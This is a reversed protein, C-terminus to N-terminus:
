LWDIEREYEREFASIAEQERLTFSLEDLGALLLQKRFPDIEFQEVEGGPGRLTQGALDIVIRLNRGVELATWLAAVRAEALVVPLLGNMLSNNFFIDGFSPAIVARVGADALAWVAAERSSGCGFNRGAVIIEAGGYEPRDLVFDTCKTGDEAHRLDYFLLEGYGDQRRRWLFRAPIIQDTDLNAAKLPAAVADLTGFPRM